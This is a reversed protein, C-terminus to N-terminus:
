ESPLQTCVWSEEKKNKFVDIIYTSSAEIDPFYATLGNTSIIWNGNMTQGQQDSVKFFTQFDKEPDLPTSLTVALAAGNQYSQESIDAVELEIEAYQEKVHALDFSKEAQNKSSQQPQDCGSISVTIILALIFYLKNM